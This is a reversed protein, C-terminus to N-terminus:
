HSPDDGAQVDTDLFLSAKNYQVANYQM